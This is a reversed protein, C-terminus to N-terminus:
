DHHGGTLTIAPTALLDRLQHIARNTQSKVTGVGIGLTDATQRETLDHWYRLVIVSRQRFPLSRIARVLRDRDDLEAILDPAPLEHQPLGIRERRLWGRGRDRCLNVVIQRAYAHPDDLRRWRVFVRELAAQVVDESVHPDGTLAGALRLLTIAYEDAFATFADDHGSNM